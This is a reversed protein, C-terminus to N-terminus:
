VLVIILLARCCLDYDRLCRDDNALFLISSNPSLGETPPLGPARAGQALPPDLPRPRGGSVQGLKAYVYFTMKSHVLVWWKRTLFFKEPSPACAGGRVGESSREGGNYLELDAM